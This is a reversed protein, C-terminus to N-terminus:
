LAQPGETLSLSDPAIPYPVGHVAIYLGESEDHRLAIDGARLADAYHKELFPALVKGPMLPADWDIDFWDAWASHRGHKLVDAWWANRPDTAMHNPVIDLLLGMGRAAAENALERLAAEGGRENDVTSHDIVDYGHTSGPVAQSVPSLYLHSVGLRAFYPLDLQADNLTYGAHLQLRLTARRERRPASGRRQSIGDSAVTSMGCSRINRQRRTSAPGSAVLGSCRGGATGRGCECEVGPVLQPAWGRSCRRLRVGASQTSGAPGVPGGACHQM